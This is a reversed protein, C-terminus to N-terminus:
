SNGKKMINERWGKLRNMVYAIEEVGYDTEFELRLSNKNDWQEELADM